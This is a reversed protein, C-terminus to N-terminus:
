KKVLVMAKDWFEPVSMWSTMIISSTRGSSIGVFKFPKLISEIGKLLNESKTTRIMLDTSLMLVILRFAFLSGTSLGAQTIKIPGLTYLVNGGTHFFIPIAFSFLIFTSMKKVGGFINLFSIGASMSIILILCLMVGYAYINNLVFITIAMIVVVAIKFEPKFNHLFSKGPIYRKNFNTDSTENKLLLIEYGKYATDGGEELKECVKSAIVGTVWGMIVGSIGLWPLLMFVGTHKIILLYVLSIQTMNHVVAGLISIGILSLIPTKMKSLIAYAAGMTISSTIASAFSLVFTPTLFTGLLLSSVITRLVAIELASMFGLDVLAVITIMNALGLKIGPVPQPFFSEAMQLIAACTVLLATKQAKPDNQINM